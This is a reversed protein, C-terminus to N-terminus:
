FQFVPLLAQAAGPGLSQQHRAGFPAHLILQMGGSEDFFREAIILKQSPVAGLVPAGPLVYEIAQEAGADIWAANLKCGPSAHRMGQPKPLRRTVAWCEGIKDRLESLQESLEARARRRRAWGSPFTPRRAKRTKWSCAAASARPPNALLHQGAAHHRRGPERRRFRRGGHRGRHRRAHGGRHLACNEPIAGGSTIAALRAGRRARLRHNVRDRFLYSGYRGRRASIGESLMALMADFEARPLTAIRIPAASWLSSITKRGIKRRRLRRRDAAGSRRAASRSDILRDLEGQRVARM